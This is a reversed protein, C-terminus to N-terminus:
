AISDQLQTKRIKYSPRVIVKIIEDGNWALFGRLFNSQEEAACLVSYLISHEKVDIDGNLYALSLKSYVSPMERRITSKRRQARLMRTLEVGSKIATIASLGIVIPLPM